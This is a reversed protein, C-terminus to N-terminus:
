ARVDKRSWEPAFGGNALWEFLAGAYDTAQRTEDAIEERLETLGSGDPADEIGDARDAMTIYRGYHYRFQRLAENPDM